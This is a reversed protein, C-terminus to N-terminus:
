LQHVLGGMGFIDSGQETRRGDDWPVADVENLQWGDWGTSGERKSVTEELRSLWGVFAQLLLQGCDEVTKNTKQRNAAVQFEGKEAVALLIERRTSAAAM